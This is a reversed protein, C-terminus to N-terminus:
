KKPIPFFCFKEMSVGMNRGWCDMGTRASEQFDMMARTFKESAWEFQNWFLDMMKASRNQLVEMTNFAANLSTKQLETMHEYLDTQVKPDMM